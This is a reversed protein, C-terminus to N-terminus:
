LEPSLAFFYRIKRARIEKTVASFELRIQNNESRPRGSAFYLLKERKNKRGPVDLRASRPLSKRADTIVCRVARINSTSTQAKVVFRCYKRKVARYVNAPMQVANCPSYYMYIYMHM